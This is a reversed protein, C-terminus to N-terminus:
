RSVRRRASPFHDNAYLKGTRLYLVITKERDFQKITLFELLLERNLRAKRLDAESSFLFHVQLQQPHDHELNKLLNYFATSDISPNSYVLFVFIDRITM